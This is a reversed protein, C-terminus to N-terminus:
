CILYGSFHSDNASGLAGGLVVATNGAGGSIGLTSTVVTGAPLTIRTPVSLIIEAGISLSSSSPNIYMGWFANTGNILLSLNLSTMAATIGSIAYSQIFMYNGNVPATFTVNGGVITINSAQDNDVVVTGGGNNGFTFGAGAGTVGGSSVSMRADFMPQFPMTRAGLPTMRWAVVTSSPTGPSNGIVLNNNAHQIGFPYEQVGNIALRLAPDGGGNPTSAIFQANSGVNPTGIHSVTCSVDTPGADRRNVTFDNDYVINNISNNTVM